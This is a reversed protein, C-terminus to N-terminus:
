NMACARTLRTARDEEPSSRELLDMIRQITGATEKLKETNEEFIDEATVKGIKKREENQCNELVHEQDEEEEKCMRCMTDQYMNRFNSKAKLMRTRARFITNIEMRNCKDMYKARTGPRMNRKNDMYYKAKTKNETGKKIMDMMKEQLIKKIERKRRGESQTSPRPPIGTEERIKENTKWWGKQDQDERINKLISSPNDKLKDMYIIRNKLIIMEPILTGTELYLPEWPTSKPAMIIRKLINDTIQKIQIQDKKRPTTAEWGYTINPLICTEFLEWIVRMEINKLNVSGAITMATNYAAEAKRRSEKVHEDMNNQTSFTTGLYKYKECYGLKMDGLYFEADPLQKGIKLIKSKEEGFKIRYRTGMEQTIDLMEQLEERNESILAVDDMWLLCGIKAGQGINIGLNRAKVEKAIEDMLTAYMVVSLVGGQRINDKMQIQRTNGHKTEIVATLDENLQKIKKWLRDKIGRKELVYMIGDAWAKDYAKTVDLFAIYVKKGKKIAEKLALTHDVTNSGKKGGGQSDSIDLQEKARENIIREFLKGTNSSITIGRENSCKGKEGKGKYITIIRGKKWAEPIVDHELICNFFKCLTETNKKNMFILAENPINDPGCSKKKKLKRKVKEMENRQILPLHDEREIRSNTNRNTETIKKTWARGEESVERARYLEEFYKAIHEKAREPDTLLQGEEDRTEHTTRKKGLLKKRVKWIHNRDKSANIEELEKMVKDKECDEIAKRLNTQAAYYEQLKEKKDSPDAYELEKRKERKRKRLEKVQSTERPKEHETITVTKKGISEELAEVIAKELIHYSKDQTDLLKELKKNYANWNSEKNIKWREAKKKSIKRSATRIKATITNHDSESRANKLRKTGAEDIELDYTIDQGEQNTIVYDIVSKESPRKRNVRTWKGTSSMKNLQDMRTDHLFEEMVKGNRSLNQDKVALKANFDGALIVAGKHNMMLVQTKLQEFQATVSEVEAKEQLGYYCGIFIKNNGPLNLEIWCIELEESEIVDPQGVHNTLSNKIAIAVGGGKGNKREKSYWTFGELAPPRGKTETLMVIDTEEAKMVDALSRIKGRAGNINCYLLNIHPTRNRRSRSRM